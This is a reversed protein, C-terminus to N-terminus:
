EMRTSKDVRVTSPASLEYLEENHLKSWEGTVKRRKRGFKKRLVVNEFVSQRNEGCKSRRMM